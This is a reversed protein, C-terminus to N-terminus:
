GCENEFHIRKQEPTLQNWDIEGVQKYSKGNFVIYDNGDQMNTRLSGRNIGLFKALKTQNGRFIVMLKELNM